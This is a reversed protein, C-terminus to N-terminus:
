FHKVKMGDACNQRKGARQGLYSMKSFDIGDDSRLFYRCCRSDSTRSANKEVVLRLM